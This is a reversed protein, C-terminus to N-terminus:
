VTLCREAACLLTLKKNVSKDVCCFSVVCFVKNLVYAVHTTM